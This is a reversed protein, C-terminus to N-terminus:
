DSRRLSVGGGVKLQQRHQSHAHQRPRRPGGAGGSRSKQAPALAWSRRPCATRSLDTIPPAEGEAPLRPDPESTSANTIARTTVRNMATGRRLRGRVGLAEFTM